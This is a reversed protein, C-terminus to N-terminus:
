PLTRIEIFSVKNNVASAGNSLTLRGDTITVTRTGELWLQVATPTGNVM